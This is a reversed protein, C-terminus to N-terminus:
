GGRERKRLAAPEEPKMQAAHVVRRLRQDHQSAQRVPPLHVRANEELPVRPIRQKRKSPKGGELCAATRQQDSEACPTQRM